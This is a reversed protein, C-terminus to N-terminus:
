ILISLLLTLIMSCHNMSKGQCHLARGTPTRYLATIRSRQWEKEGVIHWEIFDGQKLGLVQAMKVSMSIGQQPLIIEEGDANQFHLYNGEDM